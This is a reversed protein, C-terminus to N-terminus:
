VIEAEKPFKTKPNSKVSQQFRASKKGDSKLKLRLNGSLRAMIFFNFYCFQIKHSKAQESTPAIFNVDARSAFWREDINQSPQLHLFFFRRVIVIKITGEPKINQSNGNYHPIKGSKRITECMTLQFTQFKMIFALCAGFISKKLFRM